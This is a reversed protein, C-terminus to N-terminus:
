NLNLTLSVKFEDSEEGVYLEHKNPYLLNLRKKVNVLGIGGTYGDQKSIEMGNKPKSNSIVFKLVNDEAKLDVKVFGKAIYNRRSNSSCVSVM